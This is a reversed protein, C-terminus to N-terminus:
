MKVIAIIVTRIRERKHQNFGPVIVLFTSGDFAPGRGTAATAIAIAIGIILFSAGHLGRRMSRHSMVLGVHITLFIRIPRQCTQGAHQQTIITAHTRAGGRAAIEHFVSSSQALIFEAIKPRKCIRVM